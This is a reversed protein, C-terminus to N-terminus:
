TLNAHMRITGAIEVSQIDGSLRARVQEFKKRSERDNQIYLWTQLTENNRVLVGYKSSIITASELTGASTLFAPSIKQLILLANEQNLVFVLGEDDQGDKIGSNLIEGSLILSLHEMENLSHTQMTESKKCSSIMLLLAFLIRTPSLLVSGASKTLLRKM